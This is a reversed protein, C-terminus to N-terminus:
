VMMDATRRPRRAGIERVALLVLLGLLGLGALWFTITKAASAVGLLHTTAVQGPFAGLARYALLNELYDFGSGILAVAALSILRPRRPAVKVIALALSSAMFMGFVMPYLLDALLMNGYARRGDVGCGILFREADATTSTFRVDLPPAGCLREVTPISFPANTGFFVAACVAFSAALVFWVKWSALRNMAGATRAIFRGNGRPSASPSELGRM